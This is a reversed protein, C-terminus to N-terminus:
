RGNEAAARLERLREENMGVARGLEVTLGALDGTADVEGTLNLDGAATTRNKGARKAAYLAADARALISEQAAGDVPYTAVGVSIRLPLRFPTEAVACRLREAVAVGREQEVGPMLVCFEEGGIRFVRDDGRLNSRLVEAVHCLAEDGAQHGHTDNIAKFDDIDAIALSFREETSSRTARELTEELARRGALGTLSDHRAERIIRDVLRGNGLATAAHAVVGALRDLLDPSPLLREPRSTVAVTLVGFFRGRAAIPVVILAPTGFENLLERVFADDVDLDFFLPTPESADLM